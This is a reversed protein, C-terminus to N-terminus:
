QFWPHTSSVRGEPTDVYVLAGGLAVGAMYAHDVKLVEDVDIHAGELTEGALRALYAQNASGQFVLADVVTSEGTFTVPLRYTRLETRNAEHLSM